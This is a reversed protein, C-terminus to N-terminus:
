GEQHQETLIKSVFHSLSSFQIRQGARDTDVQPVHFCPRLPRAVSLSKVGESTPAGDRQTTNRRSPTGGRIHYYRFANM